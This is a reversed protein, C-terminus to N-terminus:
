LSEPDKPRDNQDGSSPDPAPAVPEIAEPAAASIAEPAAVAAQEAAARMLRGAAQSRRDEPMEEVVSRHRKQYAEVAARIVKVVEKPSDM